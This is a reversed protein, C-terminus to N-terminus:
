SGRCLGIFVSLAPPPPPPLPPSPITNKRDAATATVAAQRLVRAHRSAPPYLFIIERPGPHCLSVTRECFKVAIFVLYGPYICAPLWHSPTERARYM